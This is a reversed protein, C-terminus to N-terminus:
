FDKNKIFSRYGVGAINRGEGALINSLLSTGLTGLLMSLFGGKQKKAENQITEAAKQIERKSATKISNTTSKKASGSDKVM